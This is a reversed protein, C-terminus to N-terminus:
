EGVGGGREESMVGVWVGVSVGGLGKPAPSPRPYMAIWDVRGAVM